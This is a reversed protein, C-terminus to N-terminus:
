TKGSLSRHAPRAGVTCAKRVAPKDFPSFILLFIRVNNRVQVVNNYSQKILSAFM